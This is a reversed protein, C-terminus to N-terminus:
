LLSRWPLTINDDPPVSILGTDSFTVRAPIHVAFNSVTLRQPPCEFVFTKEDPSKTDRPRPEFGEDNIVVFPRM